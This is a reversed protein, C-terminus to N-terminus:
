SIITLRHIEQKKKAFLKNKQEAYFKRPCSNSSKIKVKSRRKLNAAKTNEITLCYYLYIKCFLFFIFDSHPFNFVSIQITAVIVSPQM